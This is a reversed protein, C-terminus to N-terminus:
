SSSHGSARSLEFIDLTTQKIKSRDGPLLGVPGPGLFMEGVAMIPSHVRDSSINNWRPVREGAHVVPRIVGVSTLLYAEIKREHGFLSVYGCCSSVARCITPVTARKDGM